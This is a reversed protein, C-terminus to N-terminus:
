QKLRSDHATSKKMQDARATQEDGNFVVVTVAVVM